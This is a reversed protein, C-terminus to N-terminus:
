SPPSQSSSSHKDEQSLDPSSSTLASSKAEREQKERKLRKMEEWEVMTYVKKTEQYPGWALFPSDEREVEETEHHHKPSERKAKTKSDTLVRKEIKESEEVDFYTPSKKRFKSKTDSLPKHHLGESIIETRHESVITTKESGAGPKLQDSETSVQMIDHSQSSDTHSESMSHGTGGSSGMSWAASEVSVMMLSEEQQAEKEAGCKSEEKSNDLELSDASTQMLDEAGAVKEEQKDSSQGGSSQGG